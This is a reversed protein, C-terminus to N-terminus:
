TLVRENRKIIAQVQKETINESRAIGDVTMGHQYKALVKKEIYSDLQEEHSLSQIDNQLIEEELVKVKKKLKYIEQMASLQLQDLDKEIEQVKDKKTFSYVLLAIAAALLVVIVIEM